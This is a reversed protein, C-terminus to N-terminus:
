RLCFLVFSNLFETKKLLSCKTIITQGNMKLYNNIEKQKGGSICGCAGLFWLAVPFSSLGNNLANLVFPIMFTFMERHPM